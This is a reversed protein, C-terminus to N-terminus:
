LYIVMANSNLIGGFFQSLCLLNVLFLLKLELKDVKSLSSAEFEDQVLLHVDVLSFSVDVLSFSLRRKFQVFSSEMM